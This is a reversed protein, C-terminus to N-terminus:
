RFSVHRQSDLKILVALLVTFSLLSSGGYSIFPLPIGIVPVLGVTMGINILLHVLFIGAVGYAYIRTFKSSQREALNTILILFTLFLAIVSFTGIFGQEEGITCFIFDTTQEPVYRLKTHTGEMYGKGEIGGSGIAIKSQRINYSAGLGSPDVKKPQLWVNIRNQQHPKLVKNFGYNVGFVYALSLFAITAIAVGLQRQERKLRIYAVVAAAALFLGLAIVGILVQDYYISAIGGGLAVVLAIMWWQRYELNWAVLFSALAFVGIAIHPVPLLLALIFLAVALFALIYIWASLGERFLAIFFGTFVLASGADEPLILLLPLGIIGLCVLITKTSKLSANYQSLYTALTLCTAFKAFESPQIKVFGIQFWSSAGKTVAGTLMVLILLFVAGGFIFYAISKFFKPDVIMVGTGAVFSILIWLGQKGASTNLDVMSTPAEPDYGVAYIMMWGIAVLAVYVGILIWDFEKLDRARM